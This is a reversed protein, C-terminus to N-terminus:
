VRESVLHHPNMCLKIGCTHKITHNPSIYGKTLRYAIRLAQETKGDVNFQGYGKTGVGATWLWCAKNDNLVKVKAWFRERIALLDM